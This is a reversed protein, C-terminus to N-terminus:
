LNFEMGILIRAEKNKASISARIRFNVDASMLGLVPLIIKFFFLTPPSVNRLKLVQQLVITDLYHAVPTFVSMYILQFSSLTWFYVGM